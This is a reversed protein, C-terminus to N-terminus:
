GTKIKLKKTEEKKLKPLRVTLIGDKLTAEAKNEDIETPLIVSRSFSGWYLEQHFYNEKDVREERERKGRIKIMDSSIEVDLDRDKVGAVPTKIVIENPTQYVDLTLQGETEEKTETKQEQPKPETPPTQEKLHIETEELQEAPEQSVEPSPENNGSGTLIQFFSKKESM